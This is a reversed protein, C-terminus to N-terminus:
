SLRGAFERIQGACWRSRSLPLVHGGSETVARATGRRDAFIDESLAKPVVADDGSYLALVPATESELAGRADWSKLWHLGEALRAWDAGSCNGGGAGCAAFFDALTEHPAAAFRAITAELIRPDIGFRYDPAKTFRPMGSISILAQWDFPRERLLWLFGLSHGVAIVAEGNAEAQRPQGFFGLDVTQSEFEGLEARLDRWLEADFGWGHVFVLKM